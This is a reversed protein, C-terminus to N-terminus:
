ALYSIPDFNAPDLIGSLTSKVLEDNDSMLNRAGDISIPVTRVFGRTNPIGFNDFHKPILNLSGFLYVITESKGSPTTFRTYIPYVNVAPADKKVNNVLDLLNSDEKPIRIEFTDIKSASGSAGAIASPNGISFMRQKSFDKKQQILDFLKELKNSYNNIDAVIKPFSEPGFKTLFDEDSVSPYEESIYISDLSDHFPFSKSEQPAAILTPATALTAVVTPVATIPVVAPAGVPFGSLVSLGKLGPVIPSASAAMFATTAPVPIPAVTVPVAVPQATTATAPPGAAAQIVNSLSNGSLDQPTGTTALTPQKLDAGALANQVVQSIPGSSEATVLPVTPAAIAPPVIIPASAPVIPVSGPAPAIPQVPQTPQIVIPQAIQAPQQQAQQVQQALRTQQAQAQLQALQAQQLQFQLQLQREFQQNQLQQLQQVETRQPLQSIASKLQGIQGKLNTLGALASSASAVGALGSAQNTQGAAAQVAQVIQGFQGLQDNQVDNNNLNELSLKHLLQLDTPSFRTMIRNGSSDRQNYRALLSTLTSLKTQFNMNQLPLGTFFTNLRAKEFDTLAQGARWKNTLIEIESVRGDRGAGGNNNGQPQQQQQQFWNQQNQQQQQQWQWQQQPQPRWQQQYPQQQCPPRPYDNYMPSADTNPNFSFNFNINENNGRGRGRGRGRSPSKRRGSGRGRGRGRRASGASGTNNATGSVRRGRGRGSSPGRGFSSGLANKDKVFNSYNSPYVCIRRGQEDHDVVYAGKPCRTGSDTVFETDYGYEKLYKSRSNIM